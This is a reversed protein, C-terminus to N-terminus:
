NANKIEKKDITANTEVFGKKIEMDSINLNIWVKTSDFVPNIYTLISSIFARPQPIGNIQLKDCVFNIVKPSIKNLHGQIRFDAVLFGLKVRGRCISKKPSLQVKVNSLLKAKPYLNLVALIDEESVKINLEIKSSDIFRLRGKELYDLDIISNPFGFTVKEIVMNFYHVKDCIINLKNFKLVRLKSHEPEKNPLDIFDEELGTFEVTLSAPFPTISRIQSIEALDYGLRQFVQCSSFEHSSSFTKTFAYELKSQWYLNKNTANTVDNNQAFLFRNTFILTLILCYYYIKM